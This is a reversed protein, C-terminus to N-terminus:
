ESVAGAGSVGGLGALRFRREVEGGVDDEVVLARLRLLEDEDAAVEPNKLQSLSISTLFSSYILLAPKEPLM